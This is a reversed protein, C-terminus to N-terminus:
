FGALTLKGITKGSEILAHAKHLESNAGPRDIAGAYFVADGPRFSTVAAGVAEVIGAADWGLIKAEGVLPTVGARMKVDVPNVSIAQVRVLLDNPKPAPAPLELDILSNEATIPLPSHYGVAKM